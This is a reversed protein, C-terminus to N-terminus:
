TFFNSGAYLWVGSFCSKKSGDNLSIGSLRMKKSRAFRNM